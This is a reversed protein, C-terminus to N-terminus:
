LKNVYPLLLANMAPSPARSLTYAPTSGNTGPDYLGVHEARRPVFVVRGDPLLVGGQYKNDGAAEVAPGAVFTNTAPDYLGVAGASFPVFVVRGDPLLVGGRYEGTLATDGVTRVTPGAVFSNTAPDYIGVVAANWPVLVVRGDPLLVGGTYQCCCSDM